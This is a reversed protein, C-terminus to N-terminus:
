PGSPILSKMSWKNLHVNIIRPQCNSLQLNGAAWSPYGYQNRKETWCFLICGKLSSLRLLDISSLSSSYWLTLSLINACSTLLQKLQRKLATRGWVALQYSEPPQLWPYIWRCSVLPTEPLPGPEPFHRFLLWPNHTNRPHSRLPFLPTIKTVLVSGTLSDSKFFFAKVNMNARLCGLTTRRVSVHLLPFVYLFSLSDTLWMCLCLTKQKRLLCLCKTIDFNFSLVWRGGWNWMLNPRHATQWLVIIM